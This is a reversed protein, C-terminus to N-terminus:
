KKKTEEQAVEEGYDDDDSQQVSEKKQLDFENLIEDEGPPETIKVDYFQVHEEIDKINSNKILLMENLHEKMEESLSQLGQDEDDRYDFLNKIVEDTFKKHTAAKKGDIVTDSLNEKTRQIELIREEISNSGYMRYIFCERIQGVRWIRGM